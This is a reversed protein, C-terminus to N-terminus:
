GEEHPPPQGEVDGALLHSDPTGDRLLESTIKRRPREERSLADVMSNEKGPLYRIELMWHQLKYAYRRLRPNLHESSLLQTLPKHDTFISFTRGYLYYNFHKVSEVVAIAEIETALYRQEAGKLQRSFYASPTWEGQRRVQLVGGIGLGSADTVVSFEDTPLPICLATTHAMTCLISKFAEEGEENWEVRSPAQKSTHPTLLATQTALQKAYRRYFGVSGLFARLGKKTAPRQYNALAKVRHEPLSMLGDGVQHGLFTMTRGGWVCKSPNVTLRAARLRNLVEKIHVVHEDWTQSYIVVDDMYPMAYNTTDHLVRQMLEQFVASANKVGFPMRTFEFRGWHCIFSTKEIATEQVTIQYYGKTLDLKSIFSAQGVGELVEDIRPMFFPTQRTLSNLKRYDVCLRATGDPKKVAVIPSAWRSSSPRIYGQQILWDLERDIHEKLAIPTNYARQFLPEHTGTDIDFVAQDTCGPTKTLIDRYDHEVQQIQEKQRETLSTPVVKTEAMRDRIDDQPTDQELVSTVRGVVTDGVPKHYKKLQQIHVSPSKRHGFDIGYSLPSNVKIFTFPGEWSEELKTTAGPKRALVLDGVEFTRQKAKKDWVTKRKRVTESATAAASDRYKEIRELNLDVWERLDVNGEDSGDWARYLLELPTTPEWGQRALFPSMGMASCPTSRIFFLAMPITSAWNGKKETLKSIMQNLTRHLREVVGNGQPHYPSSVVHKIGLGTVWKKFFKGKFQPGNDTTIRLPFGCRTFISVLSHTIIKATTTRLPIAEPWRTALDVATLLYKFGGVATPFPGVLDISLNEFPVTAQEREQMPNQRPKSRDHKQCADCSTITQRCDRSMTPWYFYPCLLDMMKNRGQHGFKGHAMNLCKNRFPLPVCIQQVPEGQRDLRTRYIVGNKNHYGERETEALLRIHTLTPDSRTQEALTSEPGLAQIGEIVISDQEGETVASGERLSGEAEGEVSTLMDIGLGTEDDEVCEVEGKDVTMVEAEDVVSELNEAVGEHLGEARSPESDIINSDVSSTHTDASTTDSEGVTQVTTLIGDKIEPPSYQRAQEPSEYKRDMLCMVFNRDDRERYSLSLCVTWGLDKGPQAVATRQFDRGALTVTVNCLKGSSINKNFSAVECIGGTYQSDSVCEEPVITVDAGSDCTIPLSHKGVFGLLENDKLLRHEPVPAQICKVQRLPCQPSKHGKKQCNFCTVERRPRDSHLSSAAEQKVPPPQPSPHIQSARESAIRSKCDVSFHGKKGCFYCSSNQKSLSGKGPVKDSLSPKKCWKTGPVQTTLWEEVGKCFNEKDIRGKLDMYQKLDPNLFFRVMAIAIYQYVEANTEAEQTMKELLRVTKQIAQRIPLTLTQGRDATMISESSASFTLTGCGVLAQKIQDYSSTRDIILDRVKLKSATDLATHLKGKWKDHDIDNDILAAEFLEIFVEVDENETMRPLKINQIHVMQPVVPQANKLALLLREERDDRDRKERDERERAREESSNQMDLMQRMIDAFSTESHSNMRANILQTQIEALGKFVNSTKQSVTNPGFPNVRLLLLPPHIVLSQNLTNLDSSDGYVVGETATQTTEEESSLVVHDERYDREQRTVRVPRMKAPPIQGKTAQKPRYDRDGRKSM